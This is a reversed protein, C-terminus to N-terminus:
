KKREDVPASEHTYAVKSKVNLLARLHKELGRDAQGLLSVAENHNERLAHKGLRACCIADAAAIGALVYLNIAADPMDDAILVAADHFENAKKLRGSGFGESWERTRGGM